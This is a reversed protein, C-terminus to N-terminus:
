PCVGKKAGVCFGRQFPPGPPAATGIVSATVGWLGAYRMFFADSDTDLRPAGREGVNIVPSPRHPGKGARWVPGDCTSLVPLGQSDTDCQPLREWFPAQAARSYSAHTGRAALIVPHEGEFALESWPVRVGPSNNEHQAMALEVPTLERDLFVTVHEWDGDHDFFLPGDNRPYFFWYQLAIGDETTPYAHGYMVWDYPDTSGKRVEADFPGSPALLGRRSEVHEGIDVRARLWEISAPLSPEDRSLVVTPAYRRLLADELADPIGDGDRDLRALEARAQSLPRRLAVPEEETIASRALELLSPRPLKQGMGLAWPMALVFFVLALWPGLLGSGM